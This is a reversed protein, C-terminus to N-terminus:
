HQTIIIAPNINATFDNVQNIQENLSQTTGLIELTCRAPKYINIMDKMALIKPFSIGNLGIDVIISFVAWNSASGYLITGDFVYTGNYTANLRGEIITIVKYGLSAFALEMSYVTGKISHLYIANKILQRKSDTTTALNWGKNGLVDFQEALYPLVAEDCLDVMYPMIHSPEIDALTERFTEVIAVIHPSNLLASALPSIVVPKSGM